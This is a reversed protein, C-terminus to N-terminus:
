HINSFHSSMSSATVKLLTFPRSSISSILIPLSCWQAPDIFCINFHNLEVNVGMRWKVFIHIVLVSKPYGSHVSAVLYLVQYTKSLIFTDELLKRKVPLAQVAGSPCFRYNL